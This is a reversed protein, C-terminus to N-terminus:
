AECGRLSVALPGPGAVYRGPVRPSIIRNSRGRAGRALPFTPDTSRRSEVSPSRALRPRPLDGDNAVSRLSGSEPFDRRSARAITPGAVVPALRSGDPLRARQFVGSARWVGRPGRGP